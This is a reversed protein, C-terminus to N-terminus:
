RASAYDEHVEDWRQKSWAPDEGEIAASILEILTHWGALTEPLHEASPLRHTLVLTTATDGAPALEQRSV